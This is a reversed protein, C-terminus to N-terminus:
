QASVICSLQVLLVQEFLVKVHWSQSLQHQLNHYRAKQKLQTGRWIM